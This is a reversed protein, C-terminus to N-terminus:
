ARNQCTGEASLAFEAFTSAPKAFLIRAFNNTLLVEKRRAPNWKALFISQNNPGLLHGPM